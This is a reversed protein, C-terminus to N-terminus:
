AEREADRNDVGAHLTSTRRSRNPGRQAGEAAAMEVDDGDHAATTGAGIEGGEVGFRQHPGDGSTGDGNEGADSVLDVVADGIIDRM